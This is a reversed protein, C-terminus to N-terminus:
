LRHEYLSGKISIDNFRETPKRSWKPRKNSNVMKHNKVASQTTKSSKVLSATTHCIETEVDVKM